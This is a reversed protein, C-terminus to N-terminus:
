DSLGFLNLFGKVAGKVVKELTSEPSLKMENSNNDSVGNNASTTANKRADKEVKTEFDFALVDGNKFKVSYKGNETVNQDAVVKAGNIGKEIAAKLDAESLTDTGDNKDQNILKKMFDYEQEPLDATALKGSKKGNGDIHTISKEDDYVYIEVNNSSNIRVNSNTAVKTKKIVSSGSTTNKDVITFSHMTTLQTVGM